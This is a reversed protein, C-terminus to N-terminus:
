AFSLARDPESWLGQLQQPEEHRVRVLEDRSLRNMLLEPSGVDVDVELLSHIVGDLLEPGRESVIGIRWPVDLRM